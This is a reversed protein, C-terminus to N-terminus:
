GRSVEVPYKRENKAMKRAIAESLDIGLALSLNLVVCAVDALEDAVAERKAPDAVVRRSDDASMWLFHETLEASECQLAM